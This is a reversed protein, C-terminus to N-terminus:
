TEHRSYNNGQGSSTSALTKSYNKYHKDTRAHCTQTVFDAINPLWCVVIKSRLRTETFHLCRHVVCITLTREKEVWTNKKKEVRSTNKEKSELKLVMPIIKDAVSRWLFCVVKYHIPSTTCKLIPISGRREAWPFEFFRVRFTAKQRWVMADKQLSISWGM